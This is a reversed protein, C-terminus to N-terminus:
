AAAALTKPQQAAVVEDIAAFVKSLQKIQGYNRKVRQLDRLAQNLLQATMDEDSLVDDLRRYGGGPQSRDTDLSVFVRVPENLQPEVKVYVNIIERAQWLRHEHAAAADDWEFRGHLQTSPDKAFAVVDVPRVIGGHKNAILELEQEITDM